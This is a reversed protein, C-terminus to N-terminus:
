NGGGVDQAVFSHVQKKAACYAVYAATKCRYIGIARTKQRVKIKAVWRNPDRFYQTVGLYGSAGYGASSLNQANEADTCERLNGIANNRPNQDKHDLHKSPWAGYYILWALRHALYQRGDLYVVRYGDKRESGVIEGAGVGGRSVRNTLVGTVPDYCFQARAREADVENLYKRVM